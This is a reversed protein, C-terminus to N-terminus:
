ISNYAWFVMKLKIMAMYEKPWNTTEVYRTNMMNKLSNSNISVELRQLRYTCLYLTFHMCSNTYGEDTINKM